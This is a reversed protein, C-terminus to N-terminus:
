GFFLFWSSLGLVLGQGETRALLERYARGVAALPFFTLVVM